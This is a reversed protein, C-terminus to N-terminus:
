KIKYILFDFHIYYLIIIYSYSSGIAQIAKQPGSTVYINWVIKSTFYDVVFHLGGNLCIYLMAPIVAYVSGLGLLGGSILFLALLLHNM